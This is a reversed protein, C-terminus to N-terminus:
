YAFDKQAILLFHSRRSSFIAADHPFFPPFPTLSNSAEFFRTGKPLM